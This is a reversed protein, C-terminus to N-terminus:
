TTNANKHIANRTVVTIAPKAMKNVAEVAPEVADDGIHGQHSVFIRGETEILALVLGAVCLGVAWGGPRVEDGRRGSTDTTRQRAAPQKGVM